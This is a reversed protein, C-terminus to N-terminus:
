SRHHSVDDQKRRENGDTGGVGLPRNRVLFLLPPWSAFYLLGRGRARFTGTRTGIGAAASSM